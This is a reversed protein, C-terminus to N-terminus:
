EYEKNQPITQSFHLASVRTRWNWKSSPLTYLDGGFERQLLDVMQRHSGGYYPEIFVTKADCKFGLPSLICEAVM